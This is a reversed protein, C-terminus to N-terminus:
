KQYEYKYLAPSGDLFKLEQNNSNYIIEDPAAYILYKGNPIEQKNMRLFLYKGFKEVKSRGFESVPNYTVTNLYNDLTIKQYYLAFIYPQAYEDTVIIKDFNGSEDPSASFTEKYAYQWYSSSIKNYSKIFFYFYYAFLSLTIIIVFFYVWNRIRVFKETYFILGLSLLIAFIPALTFARLAHPAETTLAAPIPAILFVALILYLKKKIILYLGPIILLISLINLEGFGPVNLRANIDGKIFLFEPNFHSLYNGTFMGALDAPTKAKNQIGVAGFRSAGYDLYYLKIVPILFILFIMLAIVTSLITKKNFKNKFLACTFIILLTIPIIVRYSNYSYFSVIFSCIGLLMLYVKVKSDLFLLFFYFGLLYFMLGATVEFGTRTMLFFWPMTVLFFAAFLSATENKTIKRTILFTIVITGLSYLVAPLRLAWDQLGFFFNLVSVSYIYVPLKFEGFARFHIPLFDGWEDKGTTSVTWANYGISAEDWYVSSPIESIKYLRTVLFLLILAGLIIWLRYKKIM